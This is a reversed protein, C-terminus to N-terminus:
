RTDGTETTIHDRTGIVGSPPKPTKKSPKGKHRM